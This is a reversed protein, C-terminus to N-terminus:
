VNRGAELKVGWKRLLIKLSSSFNERSYELVDCCCERSFEIHNNLALVQVGKPKEAYREIARALERNAEKGERPKPKAEGRVHSFFRSTFFAGINKIRRFMGYSRTDEYALLFANRDQANYRSLIEREKQSVGLNFLEAPVKGGGQGQHHAKWRSVLYAAPNRLNERRSFERFDKLAGEMAEPNKKQLARLVFVDKASLSELLELWSAKELSIEAQPRDESLSENELNESSPVSRASHAVADNKKSEELKEILTFNTTCNATFDGKRFTESSLTDVPLLAKKVWYVCSQFGRRFASIWGLESFKKIAACVTRRTCGCKKAITEQSPFVHRCHKAMAQLYRWIRKQSPTLLQFTDLFSEILQNSQM